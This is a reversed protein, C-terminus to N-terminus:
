CLDSRKAISVRLTFAFCLPLAHVKPSLEAGVASAVSGRSTEEAQRRDGDEQNRLTRKEARLPNGRRPATFDDALVRNCTTFAQFGGGVGGKSTWTVTAHQTETLEHLPPKWWPTQSGVIMM